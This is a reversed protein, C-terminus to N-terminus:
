DLSNKEYKTLSCNFFLCFCLYFCPRKSGIKFYKSGTSLCTRAVEVARYTLFHTKAM